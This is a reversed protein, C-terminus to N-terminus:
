FADSHALPCFGAVHAASAQMRMCSFSRAAKCAQAVEQANIRVVHAPVQRARRRAGRQRAQSGQAGRPASRM